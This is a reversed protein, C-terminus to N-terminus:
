PLAVGPAEIGGIKSRAGGRPAPRMAVSQRLRSGEAQVKRRGGRGGGRRRGAAAGDDEPSIEVVSAPAGKRSGVVGRLWRCVLFIWEGALTAGRQYRGYAVVSAGILLLWALFPVSARRAFSSWLRANPGVASDSRTQVIVAFGTGGIPAFGALWRGEFGPVPDRHAEDTIPAPDVWSLQKSGVRTRRLERLRPSDIAIEAGHALREHLIVLYDGAGEVSTRSRDRPAVVVAKPGDVSAEDLRQRQLAFDTGITVMLVGVWSVGDYIPASIGFKHLGDDESRFARSIYGSRLGVEGLRSSGILYDRWSYDKGVNHSEVSTSHSIMRGSRDFLSLSEFPTSVRLADLDASAGAGARLVRLSIPNAAITEVADVQERLHFAIAGALTHAAYANTRLADRELEREQEGAVSVATAAIIALLSIVALLGGILLVRRGRRRRASREVFQVEDANFVSRREKVLVDLLDVRPDNWLYSDDRRHSRWSRVAEGLAPLTRMGPTAEIEGLWQSVKTWGRVLEDHTPEAYAGAERSGAQETGLPMTHDQLERKSTSLEERGGALETGLSILRADHFRQLVEKVRGNEAEEEYALEDRPVRRRAVEGGVSAVMRMFVNRITIAYAADEAVLADHVATARETLARAVSGMERYDAARLERDRAGGQWRAWCRRYLESLAFSLLPLPAPVLAVDDLLDEVLRPPEFHLVAAAAPRAIIQRLEDRTMAPVAFRAAAWWPALATDHLQPEIDARVTVVVHLLPAIRLAAALPEVFKNVFKDVLEAREPTPTRHTLLEELQDVIALV